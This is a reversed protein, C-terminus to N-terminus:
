NDSHYISTPYVNLRSNPLYQFQLTQWSFTACGLGGVEQSAKSDSHGCLWWGLVEVFYRMGYVELNFDSWIIHDSHTMEENTLM